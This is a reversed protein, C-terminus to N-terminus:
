KSVCYLEAWAPTFGAALAVRQSATHSMSTGYFPLKGRSLIENKIISVLMTGIGLGEAEPMVNIGIQWMMDSDSTAGAMGLIKGNKYAGVGIEDKPLVDFIFAEGFREDGRFQELEKGVFFRIDYDKTEVDSQNTAIYFPHAQGIRCGFNSLGEELEHLCEMDMFWAGNGNKYKDRVWEIINKKGSALIKGNVVAVKLFCEREQFIRRGEIRKYETFINEKSLVSDVDTCFDIALQRTLIDNM